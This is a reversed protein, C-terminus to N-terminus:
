EKRVAKVSWALIYLNIVLGCSGLMFGGIGRILPIIEMQMMIGILLAFFMAM